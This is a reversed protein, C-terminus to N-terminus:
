TFKSVSEKESMIVADVNLIRGLESPDTDYLQSVTKIDNEDLISDINALDIDQYSLTSFYKSFVERLTKVGMKSVSPKTSNKNDPIIKNDKNLSSNTLRFPLVAVTAPADTSFDDSVMYEVPLVYFPIDLQRVVSVKTSCGTVILLIFLPCFMLFTKRSYKM